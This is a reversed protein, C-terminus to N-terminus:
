LLNLSVYLINQKNVKTLAQPICDTMYSILATIRITVGSPWLRSREAGPYTNSEGRYTARVAGKATSPM